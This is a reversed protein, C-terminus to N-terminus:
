LRLIYAHEFSTIAKKHLARMTDKGFGEARRVATQQSLLYRHRKGRGTDLGRAIKYSQGMLRGRRDLRQDGVGGVLEAFPDRGFPRGDAAQKVAFLAFGVAESPKRGVQFSNALEGGIGFSHAIRPPKTLHFIEEDANAETLIERLESASDGHALPLDHTRGIKPEGVDLDGRPHRWGDVDQDRCAIRSVIASAKGFEHAIM